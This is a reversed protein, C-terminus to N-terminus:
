VTYSNANDFLIASLTVPASVDVLTPATPINLFSAISTPVANPAWDAENTVAGGGGKWQNPDAGAKGFMFSTNWSANAAKAMMSFTFTLDLTQTGGQTFVNRVFVGG